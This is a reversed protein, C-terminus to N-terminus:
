RFYQGGLYEGPQNKCNKLEFIVKESFHEGIVWDLMARGGVGTM